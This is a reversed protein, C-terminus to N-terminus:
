KRIILWAYAVAFSILMASLNIWGHNQNFLKWKWFWFNGGPMGKLSPIFRNIQKCYELYPNGFIQKLKKEERQVRYWMYPVYIIVVPIIMYVNGLLIFYGLVIFFRALYMPNRTHKYLGNYALTSKKDLSAFCWLQILEGFLSVAFAPWFLQPQAAYMVLAFGAILLPLRYLLLLKRLRKHNCVTHIIETIKSM